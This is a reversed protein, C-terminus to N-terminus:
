RAFLVSALRLDHIRIVSNQVSIFSCKGTVDWVVTTAEGDGKVKEGFDNTGFQKM